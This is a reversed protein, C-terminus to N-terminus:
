LSILPNYKQFYEVTYEDVVGEDNEMKLYGLVNVDQIEYENGAKFGFEEASRSAFVKDGKGVFVQDSIRPNDFQNLLIKM